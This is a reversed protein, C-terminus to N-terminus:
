VPNVPNVHNEKANETELHFQFYVIAKPSYFQFIYCPLKLIQDLEDQFLGQLVILKM